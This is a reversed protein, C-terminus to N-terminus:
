RKLTKVYNTVDEIGNCNKLFPSEIYSNLKKKIAKNKINKPTSGTHIIVAGIKYNIKNKPFLSAFTQITSIIQNIARELDTGKLEVFIVNKVNCDEYYIVGDCREGNRFCGAIKKRCKGNFESDIVIGLAKEGTDIICKIGVKNEKCVINKKGNQTGNFDYGICKSFHKKLILYM